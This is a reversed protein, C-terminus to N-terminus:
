STSRQVSGIKGFLSEQDNEYRSSRELLAAFFIASVEILFDPWENQVGRSEVLNLFIGAPPM